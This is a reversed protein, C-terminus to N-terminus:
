QFLNSWRSRWRSSHECEHQLEQRNLCGVSKPRSTKCRRIPARDPFLTAALERLQPRNMKGAEETSINTLTVLEQCNLCGVSTPRSTKSRHIPARDPFWQIALELLQQKDMNDADESTVGALEVLEERSLCGVSKPKKEKVSTMPLAACFWFSSEPPDLSRISPCSLDYTTVNAM